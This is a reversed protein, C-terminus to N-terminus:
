SFSVQPGTFIPTASAMVVSWSRLAAQAVASAGKGATRVQHAEDMAMFGWEFDFITPVNRHKSDKERRFRNSDKAKPSEVLLKAEAKLTGLTVLVIM